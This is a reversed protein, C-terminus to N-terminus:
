DPTLAPRSPEGALRRSANAPPASAVPSQRSAVKGIIRELLFAFGQRQEGVVNQRDRVFEIECDTNTIDLFSLIAAERLQAALM